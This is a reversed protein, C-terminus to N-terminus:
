IFFAVTFIVVFLTAESFDEVVDVSGLLSYSMKTRITMAVIAM